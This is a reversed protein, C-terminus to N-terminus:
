RDREYDLVVIGSRLANASKLKLPHRTTIGDFLPKGQGFIVPNVIFRYEDVLDAQSLTSIIGSSAFIVINKGSEEKLKSVTAVLDDKVLSINDWKGWPVETLTKSFVIKTSKNMFDAAPDDAITKAPWYASFFEYTVRGMLVTDSRDFISEMPEFMQSDFTFGSLDRNPGEFFGDVSITNSIILKRM